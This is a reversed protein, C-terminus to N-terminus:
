KEETDTKVNENLWKLLAYKTEPVTVTAMNTGIVRHSGHEKKAIDIGRGADQANTHWSVHTTHGEVAKVRVKLRVFRM